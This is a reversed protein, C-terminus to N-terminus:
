KLFKDDQRNAPNNIICNSIIIFYDGESCYNWNKLRFSSVRYKNQFKEM